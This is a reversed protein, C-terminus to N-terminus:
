RREALFKDAERSAEIYTDGSCIFEGNIYAEYHGNVNIIQYSMNVERELSGNLIGGVM